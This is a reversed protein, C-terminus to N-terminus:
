IDQLQKNKEVMSSVLQNVRHFEATTLGEAEITRTLRCGLLYDTSVSFIQAIRVLIDYSPQRTDNEYASIQKKNVGILDAMQWQKLQKDLRLKKLRNGLTEKEIMHMGKWAGHYIGSIRLDKSFTGCTFTVEKGILTRIDSTLQKALSPTIAIEGKQPIKGINMSEAAINGFQKTPISVTQQEFTIDCEPVQYQSYYQQVQESQALLSLVDEASTGEELPVQGWAFATNKEEFSSIKEEIINQSSFSMLVACVATTVALSIGLFRKFHVRFNHWARKPM